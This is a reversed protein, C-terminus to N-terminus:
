RDCRVERVADPSPYMPSGHPVFIFSSSQGTEERAAGIRPLALSAPTDARGDTGQCEGSRTMDNPCKMFSLRLLPLVRTRTATVEDLGRMGTMAAALSHRLLFMM